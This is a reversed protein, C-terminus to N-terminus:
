PLRLKRTQLSGAKKVLKRDFSAFQTAPGSLALHLADAFDLGARYGNLSESVAEPEAMQVQPLGLFALLHDAIDQSTCGYGSRLVWECELLVTSTVWVPGAAILAKARRAQAPDDAMLFRVVVNTDLAVLDTNM